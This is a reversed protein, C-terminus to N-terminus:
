RLSKANGIRLEFLTRVLPDEDPALTVKALSRRGTRRDIMALARILANDSQSSEELPTELYRHLSDGLFSANKVGNKEMIAHARINNKLWSERPHEAKVAQTTEGLANLWAGFSLEFVKKGDLTIYAHDYDDDHSKRYVARHFNVRDRLDECILSRIHKRLQSWIM